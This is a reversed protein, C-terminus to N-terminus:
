YGGMATIQLRLRSRRIGSRCRRVPQRWISRSVISRDLRFRWNRKRLGSMELDLASTAAADALCKLGELPILIWALCPFTLSACFSRSHILPKPSTIFAKSLM